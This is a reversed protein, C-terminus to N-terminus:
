HLDLANPLDLRIALRRLASVQQEAWTCIDTEYLTDHDM